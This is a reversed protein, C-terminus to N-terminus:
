GDSPMFVVAVFPRTLGRRRSIWLGHRALADEVEDFEGTAM